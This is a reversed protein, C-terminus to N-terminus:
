FELFEKSYHSMDLKEQDPLPRIGWQQMALAGFLVEIPRGEEDKGIEDIVMAHTSIKCGEVEADLVAAQSAKRVKGGLASRFPKGLQSTVLLAAIEPVVYTNRAGTDFLTWCKRAKIDIYQRVRGMATTGQFLGIDIV